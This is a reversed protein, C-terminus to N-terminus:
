EWAWLKEKFRYRLTGTVNADISFSRRAVVGGYTMEVEHDGYALPRTSTPTTGAPSGDIAVAAGIVDALIRVPRTLVREPAVTPSASAPPAATPEARPEPKPPPKPEPKPSAVKVPATPAEHIDPATTPLPEPEDGLGALIAQRTADNGPTSTPKRSKNPAGEEPSAPGAAPPPEIALSATGEPPPALDTTPDALPETPPLPQAGPGLPHAASWFGVAVLGLGLVLVAAGLGIVAPAVPLERPPARPPPPVGATQALSLGSDEIPETVRAAGAPTPTVPTGLLEGASTGGLTQSLTLAHAEMAPPVHARAWARLSEGPLPLAELAERVEAATPRQEPLWATMQRLLPKLVDPAEEIQELVRRAFREEGLPPREWSRGVVLEWLTVALAYVDNGAGVEGQLFQEPAMFRPTGFAMSQTNGEREFDARAVGFDLVKVAGHVTVLVNAPKIDRHIVHLPRESTPSLSNWGADLAGAVAAAIPVAVNLPLAGRQKLLTAADAGEVFEMIVAPLGNHETLDFVQVIHPHQLLGLLRAEDRQRAIVDPSAGIDKMLKVAVRRSFGDRGHLKALWVTGFGGQGLPRLLELERSEM